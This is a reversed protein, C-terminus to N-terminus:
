LSKETKWTAWPSAGSSAALYRFRDAYTDRDRVYGCSVEGCISVGIWCHIAFSM